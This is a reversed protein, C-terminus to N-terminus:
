LEQQHWGSLSLDIHRGIGISAGTMLIPGISDSVYNM